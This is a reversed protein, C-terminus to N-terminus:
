FEDEDEVEENKNPDKELRIVDIETYIRANTILVLGHSISWMWGLGFPASLLQFFSAQIASCRRFYVKKSTSIM